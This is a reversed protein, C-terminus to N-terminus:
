KIKEEVFQILKKIIVLIERYNNDIFNQTVKEGYYVVGHRLKRLLDLLRKESESLIRYNENFYEILKVHSLTKYGDIFMVATLSEKISEYAEEVVKYRREEEYARKILILRDKAYTILDKAREFDKKIPFVEEDM